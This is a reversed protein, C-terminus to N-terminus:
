GVLRVADFMKCGAGVRQAFHHRRPGIVKGLLYRKFYLIRSFDLGDRHLIRGDLDFSLDVLTLLKDLRDPLTQQGVAITFIAGCRM